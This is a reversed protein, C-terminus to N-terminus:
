RTWFAGASSGSALRRVSDGQGVKGTRHDTPHAAGDAPGPLQAVVEVLQGGAVAGDGQVHHVAEQLAEGSGSLRVELDQQLDDGLPDVGQERPQDDEGGQGM